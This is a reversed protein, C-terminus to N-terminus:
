RLMAVKVMRALTVVLPESGQFIRIVWDVFMWFTDYTFGIILMGLLKIYLGWFLTAILCWFKLKISKPKVVALACRIVLGIAKWTGAILFFSAPSTITLGQTVAAFEGIFLFNMLVFPYFWTSISFDHFIQSDSLWGLLVDWCELPYSISRQFRFCRAKPPTVCLFVIYGWLFWLVFIVNVGHDWSPGLITGPRPGGANCPFCRLMLEWSSQHSPDLGAAQM